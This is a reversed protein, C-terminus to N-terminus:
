LREQRRCIKIGSTKTVKQDDRKEELIENQKVFLNDTNSLYSVKRALTNGGGWWGGEGGGGGGGGGGGM